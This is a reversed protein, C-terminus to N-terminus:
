QPARYRSVQAIVDAIAEVREPELGPAVLEAVAEREVSGPDLPGPLHALCEAIREGIRELAPRLETELAFARPARNAPSALTSEQVAAGADVLARFLAQVWREPIPLVGARKAADRATKVAGDLVRKEQEPDRVPLGRERKAEAVFPMLELREDIAALL